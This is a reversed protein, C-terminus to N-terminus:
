TDTGSDEQGFPNPIVGAVSPERDSGTRLEIVEEAVNRASIVAGNGM